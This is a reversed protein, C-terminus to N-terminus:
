SQNGLQAASAVWAGLRVVRGDLPNWERSPYTRDLLPDLGDITRKWMAPARRYRRTPRMREGVAGEGVVLLPRDDHAVGVRRPSGATPTKRAHM